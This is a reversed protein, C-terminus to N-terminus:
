DLLGLSKDLHKLTNSLRQRWLNWCHVSWMYHKSIANISVNKLVETIPPWLFPWLSQCPCIFNYFVPPPRKSESSAKEKLTGEGLTSICLIEPRIFMHCGKLLMCDPLFLLPLQLLVLSNITRSALSNPIGSQPGGSPVPLRFHFMIFVGKGRCEVVVWAAPLGLHWPEIYPQVRAALLTATHGTLPAFM